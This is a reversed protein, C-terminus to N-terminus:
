ICPGIWFQRQMEDPPDFELSPSVGNMWDLAKVTERVDEFARAKRDLRQKFRRSLQGVQHVKPPCPTSGPRAPHLPGQATHSM